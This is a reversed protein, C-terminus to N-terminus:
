CVMMIMTPQTQDVGNTSQQEHVRLIMNLKEELSDIKRRNSKSEEQRIKEMEEVRKRLDDNEKQKEQLRSTLEIRSPLPGRVDKPRIGSGFCVISGRDQQGFCKEVIEFQSLSPNNKEVGM